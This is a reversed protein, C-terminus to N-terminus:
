LADRVSALSRLLTHVEALPLARTGDSLARAPEPHTEFFVGDIGTAVAARALPAIFRSESACDDEPHPSLQTSHTADFIVRQQASKLYVLSRMDVVVQNYGFTTGRETIFVAKAGAARAKEVVMLMDWPAMFQGKKINVPLGTRGAATILDTQRCLFAPIQILDVASAVQEAQWPEHLDTTTLVGVQTRVAKLIRLGEDLGPGRASHLSSRNAKDFSAKFVYTFGLEACIRKVHAAIEFCIQEQEVACPGAIVCFRDELWM